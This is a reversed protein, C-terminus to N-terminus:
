THTHTHAHLNASNVLQVTIFAHYRSDSVDPTQDGLQFEQGCYANNGVMTCNTINRGTVQGVSIVKLKLAM